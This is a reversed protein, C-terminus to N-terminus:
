LANSISRATQLGRTVLPMNSILTEEVSPFVVAAAPSIRGVTFSINDIVAQAGELKYEVGSNSAWCNTYTPSKAIDVLALVSGLIDSTGRRAVAQGARGFLQRTIGGALDAVGSAQAAQIVPVGREDLAPITVEMIVVPRTQFAVNGPLFMFAGLADQINLVVSQMDITSTIPGPVVAFPEMSSNVGRRRYNTREQNARFQSTAGIARISAATTLIDLPSRADFPSATDDMQQFGLLMLQQSLKVSTQPVLNGPM